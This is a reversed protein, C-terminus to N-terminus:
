IFGKLINRQQHHKPSPFLLTENEHPAPTEGLGRDYYYAANFSSWFPCNVWELVSYIYSM